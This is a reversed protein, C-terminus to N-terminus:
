VGGMALLEKAKAGSWDLDGSIRWVEKGDADFLISMPLSAEKLALMLANDRDHYPHIAIKKDKLFPLVVKAGQMDESVAVVQLGNPADAGLKALTPLEKVCPVCWTAWLNVLLPKDKFDDMTKESGDALDEFKTSPPAKGKRDVDVDFAPAPKAPAAAATQTAQPAM